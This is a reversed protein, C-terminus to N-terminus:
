KSGVSPVYYRLNFSHWFHVKISCVHCFFILYNFLDSMKCGCAPVWLATCHVLDTKSEYISSFRMWLDTHILNQSPKNGWEALRPKKFLLFNGSAVYYTNPKSSLFYFFQKPKKKWLCCQTQAPFHLWLPDFNLRKLWGIMKNRRYIGLDSPNWVMCIKSGYIHYQRQHKPLRGEPAQIKIQIRSLVSHDQSNENSIIFINTKGSFYLFITIWLYIVSKLKM